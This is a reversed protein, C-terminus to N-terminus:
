RGFKKLKSEKKPAPPALEALQKVISTYNKTMQLHVEVAATKKVGTQNQGNQYEETYGDTNIIEEVEALSVTLFAARAILPEIVKKKNADIERYVSRLRRVEKRIAELKTLEASKENSM